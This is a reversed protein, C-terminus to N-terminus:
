KTVSAIEEPSIYGLAIAKVILGAMNHAHLKRFLSKRHNEVTNESIFLQSAIEKTSYGCAIGKLVEIERLSPIDNQLQLKQQSKRFKTCFYQQGEYVAKIAELLQELQATKYLVGDVHKETMKGVVWMEEHMTHVIIKSEPQQQRIKDILQTAEIDPLEVDVIFINFCHTRSRDLLDNARTFGEVHGIGSKEMFSRFGELVVAHDDIIAVSINGLKYKDIDTM